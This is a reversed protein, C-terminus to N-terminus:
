YHKSVLCLALLSAYERKWNFRKRKLGPPKTVTLSKILDEVTNWPCGAIHRVLKLFDYKKETQIHMLKLLIFLILACYLQNQVANLSTGYFKKIKLHQKIWKFFLEIQWRLRYIDTIEEAKLDFRNTALYLPEGTSSDTLEIVRLPHQMKTYFTGLIVEKDAIVSNQPSVVNVCRTEMVANKKLRTIFFVGERCYRDFEKYDLYGRDFIYTIGKTAIFSKM